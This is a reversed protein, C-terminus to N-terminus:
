NVETSREGEGAKVLKGLVVGRGGRFSELSGFHPDGFPHLADTAAAAGCFAGHKPGWFPFKVGYFGSRFYPKRNKQLDQGCSVSKKFVM